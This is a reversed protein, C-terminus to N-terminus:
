PSSVPYWLSCNFGCIFLWQRYPAELNDSTIEGWVEKERWAV